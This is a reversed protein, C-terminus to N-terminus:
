VTAERQETAGGATGPISGLAEKVGPVSLVSDCVRDQQSCNLFWKDPAIKKLNYDCLEILAHLCLGCLKPIRCAVDKSQKKPTGPGLQWYM